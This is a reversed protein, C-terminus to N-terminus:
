SPFYDTAASTFVIDSGVQVNLSYNSKRDFWSNGYFTPRQFLPILTGDVMLWGDRWAPCSTDEVWQKAVEKAEPSAWQVAADRFRSSCCAKMVRSTCLRITGYGVGFQLAVKMTSAANGFHGFRYLAIAVQEEVPMQANNSDNHFVPDDSITTVLDDFCDPDIRLYSRFLEPRTHKYTHLLLHLLEDTKPIEERDALYRQSYLEAMHHTFEAAPTMEEDSSSSSSSSSSWGSSSSDSSMDFDSDSGSSSGSGDSDKNDLDDWDQGEISAILNVLFAQTLADAAQQRPSRTPM